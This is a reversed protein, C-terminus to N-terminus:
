CVQKKKVSSLFTGLVCHKICVNKIGSPFSFNISGVRFYMKVVAKDCVIKKYFKYTNLWDNEDTPACKEFILPDDYRVCFYTFYSFVFYM